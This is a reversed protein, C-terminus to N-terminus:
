FGKRLQDVVQNDGLEFDAGEVIYDEYIQIALELCRQTENGDCLVM